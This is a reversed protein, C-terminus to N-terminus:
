IILDINQKLYVNRKSILFLCSFVKLLGVLSYFETIECM